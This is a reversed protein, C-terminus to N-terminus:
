RGPPKTPEATQRLVEDWITRFRVKPFEPMYTRALATIGDGDGRVQELQAAVATLEMKELMRDLVLRLVRVHGDHRVGFEM